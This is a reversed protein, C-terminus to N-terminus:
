RHDRLHRHVLEAVTAPDERHPFHGVGELVVRGYTGVFWEDLGESSSPADCFDSGGQIMLTPVSLREVEALRRRHEAYRADGPEVALFRARYANLTIAGWDPNMFSRATAAFEEDDFWGPPSWTDWQIRAFAVPDRRVADAGADVYMIWQYWFARAQEFDPMTFVARPQYALALAAIATIREPVLAALTYAVRAGWDHGVVAFREIGLADALDLADQTLAVAQGDRPTSSSIFRTAGCGRLDPAITRWGQANLRGAVDRWGRAADPWGHILLVPRADSPGTAEYSIDLVDTRVSAM